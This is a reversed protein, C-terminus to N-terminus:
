AARSAADRESVDLDSSAMGVRTGGGDVVPSSLVEVAVSGVHDDGVDGAGSQGAVAGRPRDVPERGEWPPPTVTAVVAARTLVAVVAPGSGMHGLGYAGVLMVGRRPTPVIARTPGCRRTGDPDAVGPPASPLDRSRCKPRNRAETPRSGEADPAPM